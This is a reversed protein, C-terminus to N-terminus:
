WENPVLGLKDIAALGDKCLRQCQSVSLDMCSAIRKWVEAAVYRWWIVDAYAGSKYASLGGTGDQEKGYLVMCAADILKYDRDRRAELQDYQSVNSVMRREVANGSTQVREHYGSGTGFKARVELADLQVKCREADIAAERVEEFFAWASAPENGSAPEM